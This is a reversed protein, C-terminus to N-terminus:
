ESTIHTADEEASLDSADAAWAMVDSEVGHDVPVDDDPGDMGLRGVAAGVEDPAALLAEEEAEIDLLVEIDPEATGAFGDREDTAEATDQEDREAM